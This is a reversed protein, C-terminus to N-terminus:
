SAAIVGELLAIFQSKVRRTTAMVEEHDLPEAFVGAAM